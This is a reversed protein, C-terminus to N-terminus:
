GRMGIIAGRVKDGYFIMPGPYASLDLTQATDELGLLYDINYVGDDLLEPIEILAGSNDGADTSIQGKRLWIRRQKDVFPEASKLSDFFDEPPAKQNSERDLVKSLDPWELSYLQTKLWRGDAFFFTASDATCQMRVPDEAIRVIETVASKPINIPLPFSEGLWYELLVVNNTAFASQGRLMIGRAWIRSADDAIFPHLTKLAALMGPKLDISDGEPNISPFTQEELCEVYARFKGSKVTLRGTATMSLAIPGTCTAVARVFTTAKPTVDLDFDIPACLTIGGNHGKIFGNKIQFHTLAAIFDKKAVAGLVFRLTDLMGIGRM